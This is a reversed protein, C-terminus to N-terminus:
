VNTNNLIYYEDGTIPKQEDLFIKLQVFFGAKIHGANAVLQEDIKNCYAYVQCTKKSIEAYLGPIDHSMKELIELADKKLHVMPQLM